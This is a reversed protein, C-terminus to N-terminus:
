GTAQAARQLMLHLCAPREINPSLPPITPSRLLQQVTPVERLHVLEALEDMTAGGKHGVHDLHGGARWAAAHVREGRETESVRVCRISLWAGCLAAPDCWM